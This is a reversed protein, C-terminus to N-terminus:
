QLFSIQSNLKPFFPTVIKDIVIKFTSTFTIRVLTISHYIVQPNILKAGRQNM